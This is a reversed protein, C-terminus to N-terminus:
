LPVWPLVFTDRQTVEYIANALDMTLRRKTVYGSAGASIAAAIYDRDEHITLFIIKVRSHARKLDKAASLGDRVPMSIDMVLVDPEASLVAKVAENGDAATCVIEFEQGLTHRIKALMDPHDDALVLRIKAVFGGERTDCDFISV